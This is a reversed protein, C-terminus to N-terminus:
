FENDSDKNECDSELSLHDKDILDKYIRKAEAFNNKSHFHLAQELASL